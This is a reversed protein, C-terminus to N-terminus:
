RLSWLRIDVNKPALLLGPLRPGIIRKERADLVTILITAASDGSHWPRKPLAQYSTLLSLSSIAAALAM